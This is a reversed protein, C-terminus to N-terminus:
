LKSRKSIFNENRDRLILFHDMALLKQLSPLVLLRRGGNNVPRSIVLQTQVQSM